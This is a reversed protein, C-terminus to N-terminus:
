RAAEGACCSLHALAYMDATVLTFNTLSAGTTGAAASPGTGTSIALSSVM